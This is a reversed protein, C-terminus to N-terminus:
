REPAVAGPPPPCDPEPEVEAPAPPTVFAAPASPEDKTLMARKEAALSEQKAAAPRAEVTEPESTASAASTASGRAAPEAENPASPPPAAPATEWRAAAAAAGETVGAAKRAEPRRRKELEDLLGSRKACERQEDTWCAEDDPDLNSRDIENPLGVGYRQYNELRSLDRGIDNSAITSEAMERRHIFGAAGEGGACVIDLFQDFEQAAYRVARSEDDRAAALRDLRELVAMTLRNDYRHREGWVKGDRVIVEVCGHLARSFLAGAVQPRALLCAADWAIRFAGGKASNRLNYASRPSMGAARAADEVVGCQALADLFAHIREPTWGDSRQVRHPRSDRGAGLAPEILSESLRDSVRAGSFLPECTPPVAPEDTAAASSINASHEM